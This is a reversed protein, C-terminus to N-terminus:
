QLRLPHCGSASFEYCEPFCRLIARRVFEQESGTKIVGVGVLSDVENVAPAIMVYRFCQSRDVAKEAVNGGSLDAMEIGAQQVQEVVQIRGEVM